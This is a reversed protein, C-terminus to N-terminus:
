RVEEPLLLNRTRCQLGIRRNATFGILRGGNRVPAQRPVIADILYAPLGAM